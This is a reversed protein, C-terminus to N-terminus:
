VPTALANISGFEPILRRVQEAKMPLVKGSAVSKVSYGMGWLKGLMEDFVRPNDAYVYPALELLIRPKHRGIAETAGCLVEFEHGDVDLKVFDVRNLSLEEVAQDLTASVAGATDMLRGRHKEHLNESSILPWSSFVAPPLPAEAEAVLMMQLTTVRASLEPNLVLNAALKRIAFATPEFAIVRGRAGVLRALPLTHAGINAGVDLVIDGPRILTDYLKVTAPEFSGLAYISFDIGENLDLHWRLGARTVEAEANRGATRRFFMVGYHLVKALAIKQATSLM